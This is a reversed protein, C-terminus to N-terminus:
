AAIKAIHTAYVIQYVATRSMPLARVDTYGVQDRNHRHHGRDEKQTLREPRALDDARNEDEGAHRQRAETQALWENRYSGSRASGAAPAM